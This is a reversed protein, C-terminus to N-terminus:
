EGLLKLSPLAKGKTNVMASNAMGGNWLVTGDKSRVITALGEWWWIGIGKKAPQRLVMDRLAQLYIKQGGTSMAIGSLKASNVDLVDNGFTQSIWPYATEAIVVPFDFETSVVKLTDALNALPGGWQSYYSIGLVDFKALGYMQAKLLWWRVRNSDGGWELHLVSRAKPILRRLVKTAANHLRVFNEWDYREGGSIRGLPWLFGGGIENGIQVWQPPVGAKVFKKLTKETYSIVAHELKDIDTPWDSPTAQHAPDAWDNSFHLDICIELGQAKLRKALALAQNLDGNSTKPNVFVRIRGVKVGSVKLLKIPDIKAGQVTYFLGGAKEVEPLWSIDIGNSLARRPTASSSLPNALSVLSLIPAALFARRSLKM